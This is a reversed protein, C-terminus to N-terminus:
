QSVILQKVAYQTDTSYFLTYMGNPLNVPLYGSTPIHSTHYVRQGISNYISLTAKSFYNTIPKIYIYNGAPNPYVSILNNNSVTAINSTLNDMNFNDMIWGDKNTQNSDSIFTFRILTTDKPSTNLGIKYPYLHSGMAWKTFNIYFSQWGKTSQSFDPKSMGWTIDYTTDEEILNVWKRGSDVAIEIKAIEGSDINLQYMFSFGALVYWHDLTGPNYSVVKLMLVSTDNIPYSHFTDTMIANPYTYASDFVNKNPKGIQWINNPNSITDIIFHHTFSNYPQEFNHNFQWQADVNIFPLTFFLTLILKM